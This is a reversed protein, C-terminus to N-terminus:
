RKQHALEHREKKRIYNKHGKNARKGVFFSSHIEEETLSVKNGYDTKVTYMIKKLGTHHFINVIIGNGIRTGNKTFLVTNFRLKTKPSENREIINNILSTLAPLNEFRLWSEVDWKWAGDVPCCSGNLYELLREKPNIVKYIDSGNNLIFSEPIWSFPVSNM